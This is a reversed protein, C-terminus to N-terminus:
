GNPQSRNTKVCFYLERKYGTNDRQYQQLLGADHWQPFVRSYGAADARGPQEHHDDNGTSTDDGIGDARAINFM